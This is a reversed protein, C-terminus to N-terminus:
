CGCCLVVARHADSRYASTPGPTWTSAPRLPFSATSHSSRVAACVLCVAAFWLPPPPMRAPEIVTGGANTVPMRPAMTTLSVALALLM